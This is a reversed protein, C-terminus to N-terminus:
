SLDTSLVSGGQSFESDPPASVAAFVQVTRPLLADFSSWEYVAVLSSLPPENEPPPVFQASPGSVTDNAADSDASATTDEDPASFSAGTLSTSEILKLASCPAGIFRGVCACITAGGTIPEVAVADSSAGWTTSKGGCVAAEATIFGGVCACITAGGNIPEVAVADSSTGWTTSKGVCVAAEATIFEDGCVGGAVPGAGETEVLIRDHGM